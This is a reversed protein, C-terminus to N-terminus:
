IEGGERDVACIFWEILGFPQIIAGSMGMDLGAIYKVFFIRFPRATLFVSRLSRTSGESNAVTIRLARLARLANQTL